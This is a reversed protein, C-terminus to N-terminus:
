EDVGGVYRWEGRGKPPKEVGPLAGLTDKGKVMNSWVSDAHEFRVDDPDVTALLDDKEAEGVEKLHEYMALVGDVRRELLEGSGSLGGRLLDRHATPTQSHPDEEPPEERRVAAESEVRGERPDRVLEYLGTHIKDVVGHEELRRLRNTINQRSYDEAQAIYSPTARGEALRDLIANDTPNLKLDEM